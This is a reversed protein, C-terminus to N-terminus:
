KTIREASTIPSFAHSEAALFVVRADPSSSRLNPLLLRSLLAQSLYNVQFTEELDDKTLEHRSPMVGAALVLANLPREGLKLKVEAAFRRVSALDSLDLQLHSIPPSTSKALLFPPVCELIANVASQGNQANRCGLVIECGQRAAARALEYGISDRSGGTLVMFRGRLDVGHLVQLATSSADFRQRFSAPTAESAGVEVAFALRPDAKTRKGSKADVFTLAGDKPDVCREWGLPLPGRCRKRRGTRPHTWQTCGRGHDAYYVDGDATAREEWGPPLEDESDTEPFLSSM